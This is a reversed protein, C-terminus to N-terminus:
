AASRSWSLDELWVRDTPAHILTSVITANPAHFAHCSLCTSGMGKLQGYVTDTTRLTAWLARNLMSPRLNFLHFVRIHDFTLNLLRSTLQLPAYTVFLWRHFSHVWLYVHNTQCSWSTTGMQADVNTEEEACPPSAEVQGKIGVQSDKPEDGGGDDSSRKRTEEKPEQGSRQVGGSTGLSDKSHREVIGSPTRKPCIQDKRLNQSM